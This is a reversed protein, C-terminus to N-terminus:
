RNCGSARVKCQESSRGQCGKMAALEVSDKRNGRDSAGWANGKDPTAIAGCQRPGTRFIIKCSSNGCDKMATEEARRETQENWSLGFKNTAEDHALAGYGAFAPAASVLLTSLAFAFLAPRQM